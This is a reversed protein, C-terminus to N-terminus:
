SKLRAGEKELGESFMPAHRLFLIINNCGCQLIPNKGPFIHFINLSLESLNDTRQAGYTHLSHSITSLLSPMESLLLSCQLLKLM